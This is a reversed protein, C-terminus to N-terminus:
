KIIVYFLLLHMNLQGTIKVIKYIWKQINICLRNRLLTNHVDNFM